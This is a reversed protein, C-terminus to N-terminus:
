ISAAPHATQTAGHGLAFDKTPTHIHTYAPTHPSPPLHHKHQANHARYICTDIYFDRGLGGAYMHSALLSKELLMRQPSLLALLCSQWADEGSIALWRQSCNHIRPQWPAQLYILWCNVEPQNPSPTRAIRPPLYLNEQYHGKEKHGAVTRDRQTHLFIPSEAHTNHCTKQLAWQRCQASIAVSVKGAVGRQYTHEM